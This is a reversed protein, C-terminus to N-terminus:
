VSEEIGLFASHQDQRLTYLVTTYALCTIVLSSVNFSTINNANVEHSLINFCCNHLCMEEANGQSFFANGHHYGYVTAKIM